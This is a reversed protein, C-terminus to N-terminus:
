QTVTIKELNKDAIKLVKSSPFVPGEEYPRVVAYERQRPKSWPASAIYPTFHRAFAVAFKMADKKTPLWSTVQVVLM